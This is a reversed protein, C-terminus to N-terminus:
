QARFALGAPIALARDVQADLLRCAAPLHYQFRLAHAEPVVGLRQQVLEVQQKGAAVLHADEAGVAAAFGRQEADEQLRPLRVSELGRAAEDLM